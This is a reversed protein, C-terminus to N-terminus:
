NTKLKPKQSLRAIYSLSAKFETHGLSAKFKFNAQEAEGTSLYRLMGMGSQQSIKAHMKQAM